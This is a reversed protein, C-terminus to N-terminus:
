KVNSHSCTGPVLELSLRPRSRPSPPFPVLRCEKNVRGNGLVLGAARLENLSHVLNKAKCRHYLWGPAYGHEKRIADLRMVEARKEEGTLTSSATEEVIENPNDPHHREPSMTQMQTPPDRYGVEDAQDLSNTNKEKLEEKLKLIKWRRHDM